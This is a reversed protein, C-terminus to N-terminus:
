LSPVSKFPISSVERRQHSQPVFTSVVEPDNNWPYSVVMGHHKLTGLANPRNVIFDRGRSVHIYLMKVLVLKDNANMRKWPCCQCRQRRGCIDEGSRTSLRADIKNGTTGAGTTSGRKGQKDVVSHLEHLQRRDHRLMEAVTGTADGHWHATTSCHFQEASPRAFRILLFM